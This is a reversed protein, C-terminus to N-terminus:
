VCGSFYCFCLMCVTYMGTLILENKKTQKKTHLQYYVIYQQFPTIIISYAFILIVQKTYPVNCVRGRVYINRIQIITAIGKRTCIYVYAHVNCVVQFNFHLLNFKAYTLQVVIHITTILAVGPVPIFRSGTM